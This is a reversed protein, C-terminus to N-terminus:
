ASIRDEAPSLKAVEARLNEVVIPLERYGKVRRFKSAAVEMGAATWREVMKGNRWRKVNRMTTRAVSFSSEITNTNSLTPLLTDPVGLRNVTLETVGWTWLWGNVSPGVSGQELDSHWPLQLWLEAGENTVAALLRQGARSPSTLPTM